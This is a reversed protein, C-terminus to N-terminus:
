RPDPMQVGRVSVGCKVPMGPEARTCLTLPVPVLEKAFFGGFGGDDVSDYVFLVRGFTERSAPSQTDFLYATRGYARLSHMTVTRDTKKLEALVRDLYKVVVPGFSTGLDPKANLEDEVERTRLERAAAMEASEGRESEGTDTMAAGSSEEAEDEAPAACGALLVVGLVIGGLARGMSEM